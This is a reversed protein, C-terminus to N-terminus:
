KGGIGLTPTPRPPTRSAFDRHPGSVLLRQRKLDIQRSAEKRFDEFNFPSPPPAQVDGALGNDVWATVARAAEAAEEALSWRRQEASTRAPEKVAQERLLTQAERFAARNREANVELKRVRENATRVAARM